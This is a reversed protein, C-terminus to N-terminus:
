PSPVRGAGASLGLTDERVEQLRQVTLRLQCLGLEMPYISGGVDAYGAVPCEARVYALFKAQAVKIMSLETKTAGREQAELAVVLQHEVEKQESAVCDDMALQTLATKNCAQNYRVVPM